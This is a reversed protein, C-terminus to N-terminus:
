ERREHRVGQAETSRKPLGGSDQRFHDPRRSVFFAIAAAGLIASGILSQIPYVFFSNAVIGAAVAIFAFTTWPHGPTFAIQGDGSSPSEKGGVGSAQPSGSLTARRYPITARRRIIVLAGATLGFFLWDAFVVYSLLQDYTNTTLLALSVAAQFWLAFVPTS